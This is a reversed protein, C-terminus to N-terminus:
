QYSIQQLKTFAEYNIRAFSNIDKIISAGRSINKHIDDFLECNKRNPLYFFSTAKQNEPINGMLFRFSLVSKSHTTKFFLATEDQNFINRPESEGVIIKYNIVLKDERIAM